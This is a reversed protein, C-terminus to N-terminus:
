TEARLARDMDFAQRTQAVDHVRVIHAGRRAADLAIALSGALRQDAAEVGTIEGVFRKRSAGILVPVGLGHFVQINALLQLNQATTKGFGIGPDVILKDRSIGDDVAAEIRKELYDYVDFVVQAYDTKSQMDKPTGSAHMLCVYAGSQAAVGASMPDYSLASVDNFLTAGAGIATEAVSAKRTDVSIVAHPSAKAVHEVVPVVRRAEEAADVDDAGPRTSEGGIDVIDAGEEILQMAHAKASHADDFRGGDSFSDPTVNVIGMILTATSKPLQRARTIREIVDKPVDDIAVREPVEGRVIKDIHSFRIDTGGISHTAGDRDLMLVPKWYARPM